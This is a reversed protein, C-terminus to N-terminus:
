TSTETQSMRELHEDIRELLGQLQAQEQASLGGMISRVRAAHGQLVKEMLAAGEPTLRVTKARLDDTDAARAVLGLRELRDVVGTVSPPQILLRAGLDKLRLGAMGEESARALTRLVGWQSGSIGFQSFYPDMARRLLGFTRLFGRFLIEPKVPPM